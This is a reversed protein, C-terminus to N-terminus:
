TNDNDMEELTKEIEEETDHLKSKCFKILESARKVQDSLQDVDLEQKELKLLISQLESLAESYTLKKTAM